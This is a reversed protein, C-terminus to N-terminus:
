CILPSSNDVCGDPRVASACGITSISIKDKRFKDNSRLANMDINSSQLENLNASTSTGVSGPM